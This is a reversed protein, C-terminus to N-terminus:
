QCHLNKHHAVPVYSANGSEFFHTFDGNWEYVNCMYNTTSVTSPTSECQQELTEVSESKGYMMLHSHQYLSNEVSFSM